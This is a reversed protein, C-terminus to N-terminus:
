GLVLVYDARQLPRALTIALAPEGGVRGILAAFRERAASFM